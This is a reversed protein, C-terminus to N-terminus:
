EFIEKSVEVKDCRVKGDRQGWLTSTEVTKESDELSKTTSLGSNQCSETSGM